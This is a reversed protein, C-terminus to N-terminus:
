ASWYFYCLYFIIYTASSVSYKSFYSFHLAVYNCLTLFVMLRLPLLMIYKIWVCYEKWTIALDCWKRDIMVPMWFNWCNMGKPRKCRTRRQKRSKWCYRYWSCLVGFYAIMNNWKKQYLVSIVCSGGFDFRKEPCLAAVFVM